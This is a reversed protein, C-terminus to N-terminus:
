KKICRVSYGRTKKDYGSYLNGDDRINRYAAQTDSQTSSWWYAQQELMAFSDDLKAGGFIANWGDSSKLVNGALIGEDRNEVYDLLNDYDNKSPLKWDDPCANNAAEWDYLRGYKNCNFESDGYCWSNGSAPMANLNEAFWTQSGIKVIRYFQEQYLLSDPNESIQSPSSIIENETSHERSCAFIVVAFLFLINKM